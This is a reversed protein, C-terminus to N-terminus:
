YGHNIPQNLISRFFAVKGSANKQSYSWDTPRELYVLDETKTPVMSLNLRTNELLHRELMATSDTVRHNLDRTSELRTFAVTWLHQWHLAFASMLAVAFLIGILAGDAARHFGALVPFQRSVKKQSFSGNILRLPSASHKKVVSSKYSAGRGQNVAVM